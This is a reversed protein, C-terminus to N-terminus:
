AKHYYSRMFVCIVSRLPIVVTCTKQCATTIRKKHAPANMLMYCLPIHIDAKCIMGAIQVNQFTVPPLFAM